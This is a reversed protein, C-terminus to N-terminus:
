DEGPHVGPHPLTSVGDIWPPLSREEEAARHIVERRVGPESRVRRVLEEATRIDLPQLGLDEIALALIEAQSCGPRRRGNAAIDAVPVPGSVGRPVWQRRHGAFLLLGDTGRLRRGCPWGDEALTVTLPSRVIEYSPESAVMTELQADDLFTVGVAARVGDEPYLEAYAYGQASILNYVVDAGEIWGRLVPVVAEAGLKHVLQGPVPNSGYGIVATRAGFPAGGHHGLLGDLSAPDTAFVTSRALLFSEAPRPGPYTLPADRPAPFASAPAPLRM